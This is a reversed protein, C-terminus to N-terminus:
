EIISSWFDGQRYDAVGAAVLFEALTIPCGGAIWRTGMTPGYSAIIRRLARGLHDLEDRTTGLEGILDIERVRALNRRERLRLQGEIENITLDTSSDLLLLQVETMTDLTGTIIKASRPKRGM